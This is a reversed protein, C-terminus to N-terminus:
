VKTSLAAGDFQAGISSTKLRFFGRHTRFELQFYPGTRNVSAGENFEQHLGPKIGNKGFCVKLGDAFSISYDERYPKYHDDNKNDLSYNKANWPKLVRRRDKLIDKRIICHETAGGMTGWVDYHADWTECLWDVRKFSKYGPQSGVYGRTRIISQVPRKSPVQGDMYDDCHGDDLMVVYGNSNLIGLRQQGAFVLPLFAVADELWPAWDVSVWSGLQTDYVLMYWTADGCASVPVVFYVYSDYTAALSYKARRWDIKDIIPTIPKSIPETNGLIENQETQRISVIGRGPALFWLDSGVEVVCDPGAIGYESSFEDLIIESLDGYVNRVVYVSREKGVVLTTKGYKTISTIADDAGQNVRFPQLTIPGKACENVGSAFVLDTSHPAFVRNAAKVAFESKPLRQEIVQDQEDTELDVEDDVYGFGSNLDKMILPQVGGERFMLLGDFCQVFRARGNIVLDNPVPVEFPARAHHGAYVKGGAAIIVWPFNTKPDRFVCGGNATGMPVIEQGVIKNCWPAMWAGKRTRADGERMRVNMAYSLYGVPLVHPMVRMDLGTFGNDGDGTM